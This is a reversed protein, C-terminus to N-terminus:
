PCENLGNELMQEKTMTEEKLLLAESAITQGEKSKLTSFIDRRAIGNKSISIHDRGIPTSRFDSVRKDKDTM